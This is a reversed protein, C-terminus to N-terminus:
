TEDCVCLADGGRLCLAATKLKFAILISQLCFKDTHSHTNGHTRRKTQTDCCAMSFNNKHSLSATKHKPTEALWASHSTHTNCNTYLAFLQKHTHTTDLCNTSLKWRWAPLYKFTIKHFSHIQTHTDVQEAATWVCVCVCVCVCVSSSFVWNRGINCLHHGATHKWGSSKELIESSCLTWLSQIDSVKRWSSEFLVPEPHETKKLRVWKVYDQHQESGPNLEKMNWGSDAQQIGASISIISWRM